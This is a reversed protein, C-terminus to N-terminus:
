SRLLGRDIADQVIGVIERRRDEAIKNALEEEHSRDADLGVASRLLRAVCESAGTEKCFFEVESASVLGRVRLMTLLAGFASALAIIAGAAGVSTLLEEAATEIEDNKM